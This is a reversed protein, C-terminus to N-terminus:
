SSQFRILYQISLCNSSCDSEHIMDDSILSIALGLSYIYYSVSIPPIKQWHLPLVKVKPIVQPQYKTGAYNVIEHDNTKGRM